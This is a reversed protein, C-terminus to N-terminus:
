NEDKVEDKYEVVINYFDNGALFRYFLNLVDDRKISSCKDESVQLVIKNFQDVKELRLYGVIAKAKVDVAVWQSSLFWYDDEMNVNEIIKLLEDKSQEKAYYPLKIYNEFDAVSTNLTILEEQTLPFLLTNEKRLMYQSLDYNKM